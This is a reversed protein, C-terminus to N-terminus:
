DKQGSIWFDQPLSKVTTTNRWSCDQSVGVNLSSNLLPSQETLTETLEDLEVPANIVPRLTHEGIYDYFDSEGGSVTNLGYAMAMLATTAPTYSYIQDLVVHSNCLLRVFEDFPRNEVITLEAKGPYRDTM